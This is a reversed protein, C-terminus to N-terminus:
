LQGGSPSQSSPFHELLRHYKAREKLASISVWPMLWLPHFATWSASLTEAAM